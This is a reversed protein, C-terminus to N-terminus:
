ILGYEKLNAKCKAIYHNESISPILVIALVESPEVIIFTQFLGAVWALLISDMTPAGHFVGYM